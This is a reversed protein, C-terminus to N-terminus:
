NYIIVVGSTDPLDGWQTGDFINSFADYDVDRQQRVTGPSKFVINDLDQRGQIAM